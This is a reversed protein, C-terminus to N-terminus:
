CMKPAYVEYDTVIPKRGTVKDEYYQHLAVGLMSGVINYIQDYGLQGLARVVNYGRQGSRCHIYLHRDRPIEQLRERFESMPINVAGM